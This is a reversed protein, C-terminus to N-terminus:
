PRDREQGTRRTHGRLCLHPHRAARKRLDDRDRHPQDRDDHRIVERAQTSSVHSSRCNTALQIARAATHAQILTVAVLLSWTTWEHQLPVAVIFALGFLSLSSQVLLARVPWLVRAVMAHEPARSLWSLLLAPGALLLSGVPTLTAHAKLYTEPSLKVIAAAVVCAFALLSGILAVSVPGAAPPALSAEVSARTLRHAPHSGVHLVTEPSRNDRASDIARRVAPTGDSQSELLRLWRFGIGAPAEMEFHYSSAMAYNGVERGLKMPLRRGMPVVPVPDEYSYKIVTRVGAVDHPAEVAFLFHSSFQSVMSTFLEYDAADPDIRFAMLWGRFTPVQHHAEAPTCFVVDRLRAEFRPSTTVRHPLVNRGLALLMELTLTGNDDTDLVPMARGAFDRTDVKRLAGKQMIALPVVVREDREIAPEPLTMDLSAVLRTGGGADFRLSEVRRHVWSTQLLLEALVEGAPRQTMDLSLLCETGGQGPM